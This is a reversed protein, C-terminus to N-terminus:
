NNKKLFFEISSSTSIEKGLRKSELLRIFVGM